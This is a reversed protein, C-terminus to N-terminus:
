LSSSPRELGAQLLKSINSEILKIQEWKATQCLKQINQRSVKLLSAANQHTKQTEYTQVARWQEESWNNMITDVLLFLSNFALDTIDDPSALVTHVEKSNAIRDLAQRARHFAPGTMEWSNTAPHWDDIKGFGVGVRLKFPRLNYRLHRLIIPLQNLDNCVAQVEDGRSASFPTILGALKIAKLKEKLLEPLGPYSKSNIIDGSIVAFQDM